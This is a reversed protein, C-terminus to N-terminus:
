SEAGKKGYICVLAFLLIKESKKKRRQARVDHFYSLKVSNKGEEAELTQIHPGYTAFISIHLPIYLNFFDLSFFVQPASHVSPSSIYSLSFLPLAFEDQKEIESVYIVALLTELRHFTKFFLQIPRTDALAASECNYM